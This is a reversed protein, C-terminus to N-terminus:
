PSKDPIISAKKIEDNSSVADSKVSKGSLGAKFGAAIQAEIRSKNRCTTIMLSVERM